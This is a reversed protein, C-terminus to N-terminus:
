DAEKRPRPTVLVSAVSGGRMREVVVKAGDITVSEGPTAYHGLMDLVHTGVTVARGRWRTGVFPGADELRMTGPLRVRGNPLREPQTEFPEDPAGFVEALVDELTVLGKVRDQADVVLALQSRRERLRRILQDSPMTEPVVVVEHLVGRLDQISGKQLLHQLLEKCHAVGLVRDLTGEYVPIRTFRSTLVSHLLGDFGRAVDVAVLRERPIMLQAVTRGSLRLARQLRREEELDIEGAERSDTLLLDIEEASHIHRTRTRPARILRLLADASGQFVALLWGTAKLTWLVPLVTYIATRNPYQLALSKPVQESIVVQLATVGLLVALTATSHAAAGELGALGEFVPRLTEALEAECYAGAGLSAITIGLQCASIYRDLLRSDALVPLLRAALRSGAEARQRVRSRRASVAGFEAAAFLANLLLLLVLVLVTTVSM